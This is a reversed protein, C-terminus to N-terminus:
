NHQFQYVTQDPNSGKIELNSFDFDVSHTIIDTDNILLMGYAPPEAVSLSSKTSYQQMPM